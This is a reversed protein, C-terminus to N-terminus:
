ATAHYTSIFTKIRSVAKQLNEVSTTYAFRVHIHPLHSGFDIGPTIAVGQEELLRSCFDFSDHSFASCDMYLYFAGAPKYGAKFGIAELAPLLYDRRKQFEQRRSELEQLVQEDFAMLAAYQSITPAALYVNQALREAADIFAEPVVLWGLRWGTMGFFKSFSNIVFVNDADHQLATLPASDFNLGQYIEDIILSANQEACYAQLQGITELSLCSGTPNSPTSLLLACVNDQWYQRALQEDIQFDSQSDVKIALAQGESLRVFHRNCPYGPDTMMVADGPNVLMQMLLQLAASSGPTIIIRQPNIDLQWQQHYYDAIARKLEAIGTSATYRTKGQQLAVIGADTIGTPTPFDPEGVELHIIDRGQAQLEKARGLLRMVYFPAIDQMRQAAQITMAQAKGTM